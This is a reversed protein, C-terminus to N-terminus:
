LEVVDVAQLEDCAGVLEDVLAVFVVKVVLVDHGDPRRWVVAVPAAVDRGDHGQVLVELRIERNEAGHRIM